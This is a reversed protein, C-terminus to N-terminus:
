FVRIPVEAPAALLESIEDDLRVLTLSAGVMDLSTCYEGIYNREVTIGRAQLDKHVLGYLLYLESVPTGGLGNIMVAVRDGKQFPLDSIIAEGLERVIAGASPVRVRERGPEGHIGVGLEAEDEGLDFIPSGKAPPTCSTLALGMSRTVSNVHEGVRVVEDIDAGKEAAAGMAKIVFFNGAVGRRGVTYTSDKVAVDDNVLVTRVRIGEAEALEQAMEFAMRDGTYNNVIYIVGADTALRRTAELVYDMPPAAFVDGPCAGDLMGRGVAMVHAPEHGSGSGQLIAVKDKVPADARLILNFAPDYTLTDPNALALGELMEPVFQKPDNVFKKM